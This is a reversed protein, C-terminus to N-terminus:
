TGPKKRRVSRARQQERTAKAADSQVQEAIDSLQGLLYHDPSFHKEACLATLGSLFETATDQSKPLLVSALVRVAIQLAQVNDDERRERSFIPVVEADSDADSVQSDLFYALKRGTHKALTPINEKKIKGTRGWGVIAQDTIGLEAAIRTATGRPARELAFAIRRKMEEIDLMAQNDPVGNVSTLFRRKLNKKVELNFSHKVKPIDSLRWDNM